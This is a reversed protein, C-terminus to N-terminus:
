REGRRRDHVTLAAISLLVTSAIIGAFVVSQSIANSSGFLAVLLLLGLGCAGSAAAIRSRIRNPDANV